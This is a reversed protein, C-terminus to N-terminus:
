TVMMFRRAGATFDWTIKPTTTYGNLSGAPSGNWIHFELYDNTTLDGSQLQLCFYFDCGDNGGFDPRVTSAPPSASGNNGADNDSIYGYGSTQTLRSSTDFANSLEQASTSMQVYSSSTTVSTWSGGGNFLYRLDEQFDNASVGVLEEVNIRLIFNDTHGGDIDSSNINGDEGNIITYL